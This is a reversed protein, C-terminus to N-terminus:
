VSSEPDRDLSNWISSPSTAHALRKRLDGPHAGPKASQDQAQAHGFCVGLRDLDADDARDGTGPGIPHAKADHAAGMDEHVLELLVRCQKAPGEHQDLAVVLGVGLHAELRGAIQHLVLVDDRDDTKAVRPNRQGGRFVQLLLLHREDDRRCGAHGDGLLERLIRVAVDEPDRGIIRQLGFDDQLIEQYAALEVADGQQVVVTRVAREPAIGHEGFELM